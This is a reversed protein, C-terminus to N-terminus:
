EKETLRFQLLFEQEYGGRGPESKELPHIGVPDYSLDTFMGSSGAAALFRNMRRQAAVPTSGRITGTLRAHYAKERHDLELATFTMEKPVPSGLAAFLLKWHTFPPSLLQEGAAAERVTERLSMWHLFDREVEPRINAGTRTNELVERYRTAASNLGLYLGANAILFAAAIAAVAAYTGWRKQRQLYEPPLLNVRDPDEADIGMGVSVAIEAADGPIGPALEAAALAPHPEIDVKLRESVRTIIKPSPPIGSWYLRQISGGRSLQRYYLLSRSLETVMREASDEAGPPQSAAAPDGTEPLELVHYEPIEPALGEVVGFEAPFERAFRLRGRQAVCIVARSPEAHLFGVVDDSEKDPVLGMLALPVSTVRVPSLGAEVLVFVLRRIEFEPTYVALVEHREIGREMSKGVVEGTVRLESVPTSVEEAIKGRLLADRSEPGTPPLLYIRHEILPGLYSVVAKKASLGNEELFERLFHASRVPEGGPWEASTVRLIKLPRTGPVFEVARVLRPSIELGLMKGIGGLAM